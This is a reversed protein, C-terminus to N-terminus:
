QEATLNLKVGIYARRAARHALRDLCWEQPNRRMMGQMRHMMMRRMMPGGREREEPGGGAAGPGGAPPAAQAYLTDPDGAPKALIPVATVAAAALTIAILTTKM